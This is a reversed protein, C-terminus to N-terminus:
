PTEGMEDMALRLAKLGYFIRSRLTGIPIGLEAAVEDHPRDKIHTEVIAGRHEETIRQLAEHVVWSDLLRNVEDPTGAGADVIVPRVDTDWPRVASARAHDIVTTRAIAFLWTRLSSLSADYRDAARWARVFTEQVVDQAAGADGLGRLAFRYIESGHAAYAARVGEEDRLSPPVLAGPAQTREPRRLQRLRERM